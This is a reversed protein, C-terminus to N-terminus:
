EAASISESELTMGGSFPVCGFCGSLNEMMCQNCGCQVCNIKAGHRVSKLNVFLVSSVKKSWSGDVPDVSERSFFVFVDNAIAQILRQYFVELNKCIYNHRAMNM